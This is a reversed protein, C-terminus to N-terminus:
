FRITYRVGGRYDSNGGVMPSVTVIVTDDSDGIKLSIGYQSQDVANLIPTSEGTELDYVHAATSKYRGDTWVLLRTDGPLLAVVDGVQTIIPEGGTLQILQAPEGDWIDNGIFLLDDRLM